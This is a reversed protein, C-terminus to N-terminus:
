SSCYWTATGEVQASGVQGALMALALILATM